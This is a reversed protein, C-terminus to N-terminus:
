KAFINILVGFNLSTLSIKQKQKMMPAAVNQGIAPANVGFRCSIYIMLDELLIKNKDNNDVSLSQLLPLHM